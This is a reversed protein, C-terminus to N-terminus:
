CGIAHPSLSLFLTRRRTMRTNSTSCLLAHATDLVVESFALAQPTCSRVELAMRYRPKSGCAYFHYFTKSIMLYDVTCYRHQCYSPPTQVIQHLSGHVAVRLTRQSVASTRAKKLELPELAAVRAASPPTRHRRRVRAAEHLKPTRPWPWSFFFLQCLTM